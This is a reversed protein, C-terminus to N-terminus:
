RRYWRHTVEVINSSTFFDLHYKELYDVM